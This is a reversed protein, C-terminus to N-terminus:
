TLDRRRRTVDTVRVLLRALREIMAGGLADANQLTLADQYYRSVDHGIGIALLEVRAATEIARIVRRLDRQLYAPQNAADTAHDRPVGDSLVMLIRRAEPRALLRAHAWRLAEGDVNEKLLGEHLLLGLNRRARRWPVGADKVIIHRLENLRGPAPPRGAAVWREFARGGSWARTTFGLIECKVGCRELTRALVEASMAALAIPRGRMSGSCDILLSVVTDPFPAEREQKYTLPHRPNAIFRALRSADLLGEEMDFDWARVRAALLRRQLRNAFRALNFRLDGVERDLQTRLRALEAADCLEEARLVEDYENTYARYDAQSAGQSAAMAPSGTDHAPDTFREEAQEAARKRIREGPPEKRSPSPSAESSPEEEPQECEVVGLAHVIAYAHLAFARQDHITSRLGPLLAGIRLRIDDCLPPLAKAATGGPGRAGLAESVVFGLAERLAPAGAAGSLRSERAQQLNAAIGPLELAGLAECRAQELCEFLLRAAHENPLLVGGLADDHYRLWVAHRDAAGRLRAIDSPSPSEPVAPLLVASEPAKASGDQFLVQVNRRSAIARVAAATARRFREAASPRASTM